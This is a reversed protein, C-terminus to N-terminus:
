FINCCGDEKHKIFVRQAGYKALQNKIDNNCNMKSIDIKEKEDKCQNNHQICLTTIRDKFQELTLLEIEQKEEDRFLIKNKKLVDRQFKIISEMSYAIQKLKQLRNNLHPNETNCIPLNIILSSIKPDKIEVLQENNGFHYMTKSFNLNLDNVNNSYNSFTLDDNRFDFKDDNNTCSLYLKSDNDHQFRKGEYYGKPPKLFKKYEDKINNQHNIFFVKRAKDRSKAAEIFEEELAENSKDDKQHRYDREGAYRMHRHHDKHEIVRGHKDLHLSKEKTGMNRYFMQHYKYNDSIVFGIANDSFPNREWKGDNKYM